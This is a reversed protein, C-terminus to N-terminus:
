PKGSPGPEEGPGWGPGTVKFQRVRVQGQEESTSPEPDVPKHLFQPPDTHVSHGWSETSLTPKPDEGNM